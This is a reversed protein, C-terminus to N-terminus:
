EGIGRASIIGTEIKCCQLRKFYVVGACLVALRAHLKVGQISRENGGGPTFIRVLGRGAIGVNIGACRDNRKRRRCQVLGHRVEGGGGAQLDAVNQFISHLNVILPEQRQAVHHDNIRRGRIKDIDGISASIVADRNRIIRRGVAGGVRGERQVGVARRRAIGNRNKQTLATTDEGIINLDDGRPRDAVADIEAAGGYGGLSIHRCRRM